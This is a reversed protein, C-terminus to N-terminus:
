VLLLCQKRLGKDGHNVTRAKAPNLRLWQGRDCVVPAAEEQAMWEERAAAQTLRRYRNSKEDSHDIGLLM